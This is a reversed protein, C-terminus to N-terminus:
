EGDSEPENGDTDLNKILPGFVRHMRDLMDCLTAHQEPWVKRNSPDCTECFWRIHSEKKDKNERWDLKVGMQREIDAQAKQIQRFHDLRDDGWMNLYAGIRKDRMNAIAVLSFWGRGIAIGMASSPQAKTPKFAVKSSLAHERFASWYELQLRQRETLDPRPGIIKTWENPKCAVNFKPAIPSNGIRWAEIELGFFNAGDDTVRNLWDIAARHQETFREAIWVIVVADLGAAYTIIQGLHTHDTKQLQNEILVYRDSATDKCLIDARFPGVSEETGEVELELELVDGLLRINEETSLWPTFDSAESVWVERLDVKSLRGLEPRPM